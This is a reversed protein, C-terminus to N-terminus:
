VLALSPDIVVAEASGRVLLPRGEPYKGGLRGGLLTVHPGLPRDPERM